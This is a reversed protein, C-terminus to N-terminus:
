QIQVWDINAIGGKWGVGKLFFLQDHWGYQAQETITLTQEEYANWSSTSSTQLTGLLKPSGEWEPSSSYVEIYQGAYEHPVALRITMEPNSRFSPTLERFEITDDNDFYGVATGGHSLGRHVLHTGSERYNDEAQIKGSGFLSQDNFTIKDINMEGHNVLLRIVNEGEHLAWNNVEIDTYDYWGGTAPVTYTQVEQSQSFPKTTYAIRTSGDFSTIEHGVSLSGGHMSAVRIVAQYPTRTNPVTITYEIWEGATTWGINTIGNVLEVDVDDLIGDTYRLESGENGVSLDNYAIGQGGFDYDEAEIIGPITTPYTYRPRQQASSISSFLLVIALGILLLPKNSHIM